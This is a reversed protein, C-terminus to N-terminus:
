EVAEARAKEADFMLQAERKADALLFLEHRPRKKDPEDVGYTYVRTVEEGVIVGKIEIRAM